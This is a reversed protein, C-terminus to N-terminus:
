LAVPPLSKELVPKLLERLTAINHEEAEHIKNLRQRTKESREDSVMLGSEVRMLNRKVNEAYVQFKAQWQNFHVHPNKFLWPLGNVSQFETSCEACRLSNAQAPSAANSDLLALKPSQCQPCRLTELIPQISAM